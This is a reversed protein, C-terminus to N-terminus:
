EADSAGFCHCPGNDGRALSIGLAVAFMAFLAIAGLTALLPLAGAVLLLGVAFEAAVIAYAVPRVIRLPLLRYDAVGHAFTNLGRAKKLGAWLCIVGLSARLM